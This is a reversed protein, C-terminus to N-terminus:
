VPFSADVVRSSFFCQNNFRSAIITLMGLMLSFHYAVAAFLVKGCCSASTELRSKATEVSGQSEKM